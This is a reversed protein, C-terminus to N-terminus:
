RSRRQWLGSGAAGISGLLAGLLGVAIAFGLVQDWQGFHPWGRLWGILEDVAGGKTVLFTIEGVIMGALAGDKVRDAASDTRGTEEGRWNSILAGWILCNSLLLGVMPLPIGEQWVFPVAVVTALWYGAFFWAMGRHRTIGRWLEKM